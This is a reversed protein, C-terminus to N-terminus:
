YIEFFNAGIHALKLFLIAINLTTKDCSSSYYYDIAYM